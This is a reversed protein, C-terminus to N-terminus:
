RVGLFTASLTQGQQRSRFCEGWAAASRTKYQSLANLIRAIVLMSPSVKKYFTGISRSLNQPNWGPESAVFRALVRIDPPGYPEGLKGMLKVDEAAGGPHDISDDSDSRTDASAHSDDSTVNADASRGNNPAGDDLQGGSNQDQDKDSVQGPLGEQRVEWLTSRIDAHKHIYSEWSGSSHQPAQHGLYLKLQKWLM